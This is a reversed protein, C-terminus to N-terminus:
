AGPAPEITCELPGLDVDKGRVEHCTHVQDAKLEAVEKPGTWIIARGATHAEMMLIMARELSVGLVKRLVQVVFEM